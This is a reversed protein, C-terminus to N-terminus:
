STLVQTCAWTEELTVEPDAHFLEALANQFASLSNPHKLLEATADLTLNASILSWRETSSSTTMTTQSSTGTSTFTVPRCSPLEGLLAGNPQCRLLQLHGEFGEACRVECADWTEVAQCNHSFRPSWPINYSCTDLLCVPLLGRLAVGAVAGSADIAPVDGRDSCDWRQAEGELRYGPACFAFCSRNM